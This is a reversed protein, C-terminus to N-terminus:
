DDGGEEFRLVVSLDGNDMSVRVLPRVGGGPFSRAFDWSLNDTRLLLRLELGGDDMAARVFLAQMTDLGEMILAQVHEYASIVSAASLEGAGTVAVATQVRCLRLYELSETLAAGLEEISLRGDAALLEMNSRRKVFATLVCIRPLNKTFEADGGESLAEIEALQSGVVRSIREYLSNRTELETREKKMRREERLFVGRQELQRNVKELKRNLALVPGLDVAWAVSGGSIPQTRVDLDNRAPFPYSLGGSRRVPTGARDLIAASLELRSFLPGYGSNAPFLGIQICLELCAAFAFCFCDSQTWLMVGGLRPASHLLNLVMWVGLLLPPVLPLLFSLGRRIAWAKRLTILFGALFLAGYCIFYFWFVPGPSFIETDRFVGHPFRFMLQHLDNTLACLSLAATAAVALRSWRPLPRDQPRFAALACLFLMLPTGIYPIYYSYWFYRQLVPEGFTLNGRFVQLVLFLLLSAATGLILRRLRRDTVRNRVTMMWLLLLSGCFLQSFSEFLDKHYTLVRLAGSLLFAGTFVAATGVLWRNRM